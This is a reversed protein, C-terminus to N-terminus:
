RNYFASGAAIALFMGLIVLIIAVILLIGYFKFYRALNILGENFSGQEVAEIGKKLHNGAQLLLTNLAVSILVQILVGPLSGRVRVAQIISLGASVFALIAVIRGWKAAELMNNKVVPSINNALNSQLQNEM